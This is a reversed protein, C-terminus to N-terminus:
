RKDTMRANAGDAKARDGATTTKGNWIGAQIATEFGWSIAFTTHEALAARM